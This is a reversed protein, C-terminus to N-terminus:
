PMGRRGRDVPVPTRRGTAHDVHEIQHGWLDWGGPAMRASGFVEQRVRTPEGHLWYHKEGLFWTWLELGAGELAAGVIDTRCLLVSPRDGERPGVYFAFVEDGVFWARESANSDLGLGKAADLDAPAWRAGVLELLHRTPLSSSGSMHGDRSYDRERDFSYGTTAILLPPELGRQHVWGEADAQEEAVERAFFGPWPALDPYCGLYADHWSGPIPVDLGMWNRTSGWSRVAPVHAADVLYSQSRIWLERRDGSWRVRPRGADREWEFHGELTLWDRGVPDTRVLLRRPDPVDTPDRLWGGDDGHAHLAHVPPLWWPRTELRGAPALLPEVLVHSPDIDLARGAQWPGAYPEPDARGYEPLVLSNDAIRGLAEYLAIWAYKKGIREVPGDTGRARGLARDVAGFREFSWGIDLVRASVLRALLDADIRVPEDARSLQWQLQSWERWAKALSPSIEALAQDVNRASEIASAVGLMEAPTLVHTVAAWDADVRTRRRELRRRRAARLRTQDKPLFDRISPEIVYRHFDDWESIVSWKGDPGYARELSRRSPATLPWPARYPPDSAAIDRSSRRGAGVLVEAALHVTQRAYHRILLHESPPTGFAIDFSSRLLRDWADLDHRQDRRHRLAWGCTAALLREAISPDHVVAFHDLLDALGAPDKDFLVILAKTSRDRVRRDPCALLWGLLTGALPRVDAPASQGYRLCWRLVRNVPTPLDPIGVGHISWARDRTPMDLTQLRADTRSVNLPNDPVCALRVCLDFWEQEDVLGERIAVTALELTRETISQGRRWQLGLLFHTCLEESDLLISRRSTRRGRIDGKEPAVGLADMLEVGTTEPFTISLAELVGRLRWGHPQLVLRDVESRLDAPDRYRETLATAILHDGLRQYAFRVVHGQPGLEELLLGEGFLAALLSHSHRPGRDLVERSIRQAEEYPIREGDTALTALGFQAVFRRVPHEPLAFDLRTSIAEECTDVLGDFIWSSGIADRPLSGVGRAAIVRCLSGLFLPNALEPLMPPLDALRIGSAAAYRELAEEEHGELGPHHIRVLSTSGLIKDAYTSRVSLVIAIWPHEAIDALFGALRSPWVETGAHENIADIILVCRGKGSVAAAISLAELLEDRSLTLGLQSAIQPWPDGAEFHQGLLLLTPAGREVRATALDGLLHSKGCGAPGELVVSGKSMEDATLRKQVEGLQARVTWLENELRYGADRQRKGDVADHPLARIADRVIDDCKAVSDLVQRASGRLATIAEDTPDLLADWEAVIGDIMAQAGDRVGKVRAAVDDGLGPDELEYLRVRDRAEDLAARWRDSRAVAELDDTVDIDVHVEPRFRPGLNRAERAVQRAFFEPTLFERDFFYRVAGAHRPDLLAKLLESHGVFEFQVAQGKRQATAAWTKTHREWAKEAPATLETPLLFVYRSTNEVGDLATEFSHRMQGFTSSTLHFLYKAQWAWRGSGDPADCWFEIGGDPPQRRHLRTGTPLGHITPVVQYCLEEFARHQSSEHDRIAEFDVEPLATM